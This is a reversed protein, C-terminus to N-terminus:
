LPLSVVSFSFSFTTAHMTSGTIEQLFSDFSLFREAELCKQVNGKTEDSTRDKQQLLGVTELGGVLNAPLQNVM